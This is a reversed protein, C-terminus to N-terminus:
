SLPSVKRHNAHYKRISSSITALFTMESKSPNNGIRIVRGASGMDVAAIWRCGDKFCEHWIDYLGTAEFFRYREQSPSEIVTNGVILHLDRMNYMREGSASWDMTSYPKGVDSSNPRLVKVGFKQLVDCLEQLDENVEDMIWEPFAERALMDVKERKEKSLPEDTSFGLCPAGEVNGVIVEKLTDWENYSNLRM